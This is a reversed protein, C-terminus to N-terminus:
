TVVGFALSASGPLLSGGSVVSFGVQYAPESTSTAQVTFAKWPPPTRLSEEGRNKAAARQLSELRVFLIRRCLVGVPEARRAGRQVFLAEGLVVQIEDALGREAPAADFALLEKKIAHADGLACM